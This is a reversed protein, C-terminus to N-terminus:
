YIRDGIYQVRLEEIPMDLRRGDNLEMSIVRTEREAQYGREEWHHALQDLPGPDDKEVLPTKQQAWEVTRPPASQPASATGSAEVGVSPARAAEEVPRRQLTWGLAFVLIFGAALASLRALTSYRRSREPHRAKGMPVPRSGSREVPALPGFAQAWSQSELFALACRRWGDPQNELWLLMDRRESDTLEGDVLQDILRDDRPKRLENNQLPLSM